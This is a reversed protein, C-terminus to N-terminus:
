LKFKEKFRTLAQANTLGDAKAKDVFDDLEFRNKLFGATGSNANKLGRKDFEAQLETIDSELKKQNLKVIEERSDKKIVVAPKKKGGKPMNIKKIRKPTM